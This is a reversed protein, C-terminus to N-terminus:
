QCSQCQEEKPEATGIGLRHICKGHDVQSRSETVGVQFTCERLLQAELHHQALARAAEKERAEKHLREHLHIKSRGLEDFEDGTDAKTAPTTYLKPRFTCEKAEEKEQRERRQRERDSYIQQRDRALEQGSMTSSLPESVLLTNINPHLVRTSRYACFREFVCLTRRESTYAFMTRFFIFTSSVDVAPKTM